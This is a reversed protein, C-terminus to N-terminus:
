KPACVIIIFFFIKLYEICITELFTSQVFLKTRTFKCYTKLCIYNPVRFRFIAEEM